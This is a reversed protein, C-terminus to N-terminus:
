LSTSWPSLSPLSAMPHQYVAVLVAVAQARLPQLYKTSRDRVEYHDRCPETRLRRLTSGCPSRRMRHLFKQQQTGNHVRYRCNSLFEILQILRQM